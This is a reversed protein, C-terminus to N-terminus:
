KGESVKLVGDLRGEGCAMERILCDLIQTSTTGDGYPNVANAMQEYFQEDNLLEQTAEFIHNSDTGVLQATGASIGETRETVSRLVLVPKGLAPAEEQIGGSDTLILHAQSMLWILHPYELPEILHINPRLLETNAIDKINPNPHVPYVIEVEPFSDAIKLLAKCINLFPQGFSERRHCTVLIVRKSFDIGTFYQRFHDSQQDVVKVAMQLADIVTNGVMFVNNEIGEQLLNTLAKPTPAFHYHALRATLLRNMEEPFPAALDFSRLGAEVHAIRTRKYFTVLSGVLVSTTDGQVFVLDPQFADFIPELKVMARAMLQLLSQNPTMLDLDYDAKIDFFDLVQDLIERHQATVCVKTTFFTSQKFIQILPALKIAEPRTGFIFLINKMM